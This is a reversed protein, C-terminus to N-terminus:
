WVWGGGHIESVIRMQAAASDRRIRERMENWSERYQKARRILDSTAAGAAKRATLDKKMDRRLADLKRAEPLVKHIGSADNWDAASFYWRLTANNTLSKPHFVVSVPAGAAAPNNKRFLAIKWQAWKHPQIKHEKAAQAFALLMPYQKAKTIDGRSFAWCRKGFERHSAARFAVVLLGVAEADTMTTSLRPPPPIRYQPRDTDAAVEQPILKVVEAPLEIAPDRTPAPIGEEM